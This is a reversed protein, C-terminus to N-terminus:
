GTKADFGPPPGATQAHASVAGPKGTTPETGLLERLIWSIQGVSQEIYKVNASNNTGQASYLIVELENRILHNINSIRRLKDSMQRNRRRLWLSGAIGVIVGAVLDDALDFWESQWAGALWIDAAYGLVFLSIGLVWPMAVSYMRNLGATQM